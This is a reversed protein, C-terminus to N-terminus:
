AVIRRRDLRRTIEEMVKKDHAKEQWRRYVRVKEPIACAPVEAEIRKCLAAVASAKSAHLERIDWISYHSDIDYFLRWGQTWGYAKWSVERVYTELVFYPEPRFGETSTLHTKPAVPLWVKDGPKFIESPSPMESIELAPLPEASLLSRTMFSSLDEHAEVSLSALFGDQDESPIELREQLQREESKSDTAALAEFTRQHAFQLARRASWFSGKPLSFPM